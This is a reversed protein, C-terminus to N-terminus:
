HTLANEISKLYAKSTVTAGSVADVLTTQSEVVRRIVEGSCNTIGAGPVDQEIDVATIKHNEVNVAVTNSWRKFEYVGTYRGDPINSLNIGDITVRVGETLGDTVRFFLVVLVVVIIGLIILLKKKM